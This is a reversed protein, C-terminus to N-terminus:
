LAEESGAAIWANEYDLTGDVRFVLGRLEPDSYLAFPKHYLPLVLGEERLTSDLKILWGLADGAPKRLWSRDASMEAVNCLLRWIGYAPNIESILCPIVLLDCNRASGVDYGVVESGIGAVLLDVKIREAVLKLQADGAPYGITLRASPARGGPQSSPEGPLKAPLAKESVLHNLVQASGAFFIRVMAESNIARMVHLRSAKEKLAQHSPNAVLYVCMSGPFDIKTYPQGELPKSGVWAIVPRRWTPDPQIMEVSFIVEDLYPRGSLYSLNPIFRGSDDLAFAGWCNVAAGPTLGIRAPATNIDALAELILPQPTRFRLEVSDKDPASLGPIEDSERTAYQAAGEIGMLIRTAPSEPNARLLYKLSVILDESTLAFGKADVVDPRLKLIMSLQDQSFRWSEVANGEIRGDAGFRLLPPACLSAAERELLARAAAPDHSSPVFEGLRVVAGGFLPKDTRIDNGAHRGALGFLVAIFVPILCYRKM